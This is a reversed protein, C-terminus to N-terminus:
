QTYSSLSRKGERGWKGLINRSFFFLNLVLWKPNSSKQKRQFLRFTEFCEFGFGPKMGDSSTFAHSTFKQDRTGRIM